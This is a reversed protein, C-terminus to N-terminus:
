TGDSVGEAYVDAEAQNNEKVYEEIANLAIHNFHFEGSCPPAERHKIVRKLYM